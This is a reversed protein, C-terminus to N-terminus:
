DGLVRPRTLNEAAKDLKGFSLQKSPIEIAAGSKAQSMGSLKPDDKSFSVQPPINKSASGALMPTGTTSPGKQSTAEMKSVQTVVASKSKNNPELTPQQYLSGDDFFVSRVVDVRFRHVVFLPYGVVWFRDQKEGMSQVIYSKGNDPPIESIKPVLLTEPSATSVRPQPKQEEQKSIPIEAPEELDPMPEALATHDHSHYHNHQAIEMEHANHCMCSLTGTVKNASESKNVAPKSKQQNEDVNLISSEMKDLHEFIKAEEQQSIPPVVSGMQQLSKKSVEPEPVTILNDQHELKDMLPDLLGQDDPLPIEPIEENSHGAHSVKSNVTQQNVDTCGVCTALPDEMPIVDNTNSELLQSCGACISLNDRINCTTLPNNGLSTSTPSAEYYRCHPCLCEGSSRSVPDCNDYGSEIRCSKCVSPEMISSDSIPWGVSGDPRQQQHNRIRLWEKDEPHVQSTNIANEMLTSALDVRQQGSMLHPHLQHPRYHNGEAFLQGGSKPVGNCMGCILRSEEERGTHANIGAEDLRLQNMWNELCSTGGEDFGFPIMTHSRCPTRTMQNPNDIARMAMGYTRLLKCVDCPKSAQSQQQQDSNGFSTTSMFRSSLTTDEPTECGQSVASSNLLNQVLHETQCVHEENNSAPNKRKDWAGRTDGYALTELEEVANGFSTRCDKCSNLEFSSNKLKRRILNAVNEHCSNCLTPTDSNLSTIRRGPSVPEDCFECRDVLMSSTEENTHQQVRVLDSFRVHRPFELHEHIPADSLTSHSSNEQNLPKM